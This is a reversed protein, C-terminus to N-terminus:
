CDYMQDTCNGAGCGSGAGGQTVLEEDAGGASNATGWWGLYVPDISGGKISAMSKLENSSTFNKISKIM